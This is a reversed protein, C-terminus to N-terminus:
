STDGYLRFLAAQRPKPERSSPSNMAQYWIGRLRVLVKHFNGDARMRSIVKQIFEAYQQIAYVRDIWLEANPCIQLAVARM